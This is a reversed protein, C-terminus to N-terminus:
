KFVLCPGQIFHKPPQAPWLDDCTLICDSYSGEFHRWSAHDHDVHARAEEQEHEHGWFEFSLHCWQTPLNDFSTAAWLVWWSHDLKREYSPLWRPPSPSVLNPCKSPLCEPDEPWLLFFTQCKAIQGMQIEKCSTQVKCNEVGTAGTVTQTLFPLSHWFRWGCQAPSNDQSTPWAGFTGTITAVM